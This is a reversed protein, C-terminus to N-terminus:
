IPGGTNSGGTTVGTHHHTDLSIGNGTVNGTAVISGNINCPTGSSAVNNVNITGDIIVNGTFTATPTNITTATSANVTATQTNVTVSTPATITITTESLSIKVTGAYNQLVVNATDGGAITVLDFAAQPFFLADAFNHLRYTNPPSQQNTQTFLSIDRDNAKIWGLDGPNVPFRLIFGGASAQYVPISAVQARPVIQNNTTVVAILPQVQAMNTAANYAIIKAPLMDDTRQLTKTMALRLLGALSDNDAPNRSPPSYDSM